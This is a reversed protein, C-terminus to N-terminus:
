TLELYEEGAGMNPGAVTEAEGCYVCYLLSSLCLSNVINMRMARKLGRMVLRVRKVRHVDTLDCEVLGCTM